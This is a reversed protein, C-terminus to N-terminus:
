PEYRQSTLRAVEKMITTTLRKLVKKSKHQGYQKKFSLPKGIVIDVRGFRPFFSGKPLIKNSGVIGLPLIPVNALLALKAAGTHGRKLKGDDSRGGEPFIIFPNGKHLWAAARKLALANTAARKKRNATDKSVDVPIHNFIDFLCVFLANKYYRSNVFICFPKNTTTYVVYPLVFDDLYSAHNAVAIFPTGKPVNSRGHISRIFSRIFPNFFKWSFPYGM